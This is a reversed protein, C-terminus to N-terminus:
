ASHIERVKARLKKLDSPPLPKNGFRVDMYSQTIEEVTHAQPFGGNRLAASHELPTTSPARPRGKRRLVQELERYLAIADSADKSPAIRGTRQAVRRWRYAAWILLSFVAVILISVLIHRTSFLPSETSASARSASASESRFRAIWDMLGRLMVVQTQLDYAIVSTEWRTRMADFLAYIDAWVNEAPGLPVKSAPTPDVIIWGTGEVFAEVWSHADGQRLAYYRGFPNYRGGVFGTVNRSPIGIARLMIAMATSFYECHGRKADFLFAELPTKRGVDPQNLSYRFYGSDHLFAYLRMINSGINDSNNTVQRALEIVRDHNPPIQLYQAKERAELIKNEYQRANKNTYARYVLGMGGEDVYRIDLGQSSLLRPAPSLEKTFGESFELAVIDEPLFVVPPDLQDLIITLRTDHQFEPFRKIPYISRRLSFATAQSPSRTWRKGDYHDFSTGRLRFLQEGSRRDSKPDPKVRLVVTPDNRILGFGGLEIISGFGTVRQGSARQFAFFGKGVRPVAIFIMLTIVFLPVSIAATGLLFRPGVIRKSAFVRRMAALAKEDPGRAGSYNREIQQRLNTLALMWPTTIVFGLFVAAYVLSTTLVTAAILHLFALVAIQQYEAASRRNFLRSIQLFAAFELAMALTPKSIAARIVQLLLFLVVGFTWSSAYRPRLLLDGEAFYSVVFGVAIAAIMISSLESGLSLAFLGLGAILYTVLKHLLSFKM